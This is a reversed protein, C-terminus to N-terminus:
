PWKRAEGAPIRRTPYSTIIQGRAEADFSVVVKLWLTSSNPTGMRYFCERDSHLKDHTIFEPSRVVAEVVPEWGAMWPRQILVHAKWYETEM